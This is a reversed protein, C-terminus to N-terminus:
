KLAEQAQIEAGKEDRGQKVGEALSSKATLAVLKGTLGNTAAHVEAVATTVTDVKATVTDIKITNHWSALMSAVSALATTIVGAATMIQAIDGATV